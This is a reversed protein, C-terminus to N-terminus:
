YIKKHVVNTAPENILKEIQSDYENTTEDVWTLNYVRKWTKGNDVSKLCGGYNMIAFPKWARISFYFMYLSGNVETM